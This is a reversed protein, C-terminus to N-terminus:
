SSKKIKYIQRGELNTPFYNKKHYVFTTGTPAYTRLDRERESLAFVPKVPQDRERERESSACFSM